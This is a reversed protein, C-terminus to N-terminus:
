KKEIPIYIEMLADNEDHCRKDYFEFEVKGEAMQYGSHPFWIEDIYRWTGRISDRFENNRYASRPTTFVAYTAEDVVGVFLNPPINSLHAPQIGLVYTFENTEYNPPFWICYEGHENTEFTDYLKQELGDIEVEDWFARIDRQENNDEYNTQLAYGVVYFAPLTMIKPEQIIGHHIDMKKLERLNAKKPLYSTSKNRYFEPSCGYCKRFAKSFGNHTEFGYELAVDLIRKGMCIDHAAYALRRRRVYDMVPLGVYSRFLKYYHYTSFGVQEALLEVTIAELLNEEIFDISQQFKEMYDM